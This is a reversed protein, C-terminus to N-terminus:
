IILRREEDAVDKVQVVQNEVDQATLSSIAALPDRLTHKHDATRRDIFKNKDNVQFLDDAYPLLQPVRTQRQAAGVKTRKSIPKSVDEGAKRKSGSLLGTKQQVKSAM